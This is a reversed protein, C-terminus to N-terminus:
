QAVPGHMVSALKEVIKDRDYKSEMAGRAALGVSSAFDHNRLLEVCADAFAEASDRLLIEKGDILDIGEAGITTSVVPRGYAAAEM